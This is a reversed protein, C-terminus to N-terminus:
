STINNNRPLFKVIIITPFSLCFILIFFNNWGLYEVLVGSGAPLIVRSIGMMSSYFAYQTGTYSGGCLSTIFTLYATVSMGGTITGAATLFYLLPINYGIYDQYIFVLNGLAHILAFPILCNFLGIKNIFYAGLFTGFISALLGFTKAVLSIEIENYGIHNLFFPNIMPILFHDGLKYFFIFSLIVLFHKKLMTANFPFLFIEKLRLGKKKYELNKDDYILIFSILVLFIGIGLIKYILSWSIFSSLYVTGAYSILMGIKYGCVFSATNNGYNHNQESLNVRYSHMIIDTIVSALSIFFSIIAIILLNESPKQHSLVFTLFLIAVSTIILWNKRHSKFGFLNFKIKEVFPAIAFEAIYPFTTIIFLGIKSLSISEKALWFNLTNGTLMLLVGSIVGFLFTILISYNLFQRIFFLLTM